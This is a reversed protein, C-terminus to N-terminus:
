VASCRAAVIEAIRLTRKQEDQWKGSEPSFGFVALQPNTLANTVVCVYYSDRWKQMQAYENPTLEVCIESGSLGKVELRLLRTGCTANLDWGVNDKERSDIVYNQKEFHAVTIEVAAKEVKCRLLPDPQQRKEGRDPVKRPLERSEIYRLVDKRFALGHVADNAYWVNSQGMFGKGRPIPFNRATAELLMADETAASVYYGFEEGKYIRNSENPAPQHERYITANRYWGVIFAGGDPPSSVWVVTAGTIENAHKAAGMRELKIGAGDVSEVYAAGGSTPRVYGYYRGNFPLFNFMEHGYGHERVFEGGGHIQDDDSLGQYFRMWGIRLFLIPVSLPDNLQGGQEISSADARIVRDQTPQM